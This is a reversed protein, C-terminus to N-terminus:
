AQRRAALERSLWSAYERVDPGAGAPAEADGEASAAGGEAGDVAAAAALFAPLLAAALDPLAAAGEAPAGGRPATVRRGKGGKPPALPLLAARPALAATYVAVMETLTAGKFVFGGLREARVAAAGGRAESHRPAAAAPRPPTPWVAPPAPWAAAAPAPPPARAAGSESDARRLDPAGGGGGGGGGGSSNTHNWPVSFSGVGAASAAGGRPTLFAPGSSSGYDGAVASASASAAAIDSALSAQAHWTRFVAHALAEPCVVQGGHAAVDMYRAASNVCEGFFDARGLHDPAISRPLGQALGVRLRPGRFLLAGGPGRAEAAEPLELLAAPWPALLLAEQVTLCWQLAREPSDFVLMYRLKGEQERCLYGGPVADLGARLVLRLLRAAEAAAAAGAGRLLERAGEAGAFVFTVLPMADLPKPGDLPSVCASQAAGPADFFGRDTQRWGEKLDLEGGWAQARGALAPAFVSYLRLRPAAAAAAAEAPAPAPAAAPAAAGGRPPTPVPQRAPVPPPGKYEGMDLIVVSSGAGGAPADQRAGWCRWWRAAAGGKSSVLLRDDHGHHDVAGLEERRDKVAAEFTGDEILVQGGRAMDSVTKALSFITCKDVHVGKPLTGSAVGMRVRLGYFLKDGGGGGGAGSPRMLAALLASPPRRREGGSAGGPAGGESVVSGLEDGLAGGGSVVVGGDAGGASLRGAGRQGPGDSLRGGPRPAPGDSLRSAARPGLGLVAGDVVGPQTEITDQTDQTDVTGAWSGSMADDGRGWPGSCYDYYAAGGAYSGGAAAPIGDRSSLVRGLDPAGHFSLEAGVGEPWSVKRLAQQAQLCFAVADFADHFAVAWSDGEQEIVHGAHKHAAKSLVANHLTLAKITSAPSLKMMESYGEIDTVVVSAFGGGQPPGRARKRQLEAERMWRSRFVQWRSGLLLLAALLAVGVVGLAVLAWEWGPRGRPVEAECILVTGNVRWAPTYGQLCTCGQFQYYAPAIGWQEAAPDREGEEFLELAEPCDRRVADQPKRRVPRCRMHSSDSLPVEYEQFELFCPLLARPDSADCRYTYDLPRGESRAELAAAAEDPPVCSMGNGALRVNSLYALGGAQNPLPGVIGSNNM